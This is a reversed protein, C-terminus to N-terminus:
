FLLQKEFLLLQGHFELSLVTNRMSALSSEENIKEKKSLLPKFEPDHV